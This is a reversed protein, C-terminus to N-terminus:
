RYYSAGINISVTKMPNGLYFLEFILLCSIFCHLPISQQFNGTISRNYAHIIKTGQLVLLSSSNVAMIKDNM